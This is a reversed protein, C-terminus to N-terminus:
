QDVEESIDLQPRDRRDFDGGSRLTPQHTFPSPEDKDDAAVQPVLPRRPEVRRRNDDSGYRDRAYQSPLQPRRLKQQNAFAAAQRRNASQFNQRPPQKVEDMEAFDFTGPEYGDPYYRDAYTNTDNNGDEDELTKYLYDNVFHFQSSKKCINDKNVPM